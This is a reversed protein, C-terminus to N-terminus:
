PTVATNEAEFNDFYAENWGTTLATVGMKYHSDRVSVIEQHDLRIIIRDGSCRMELHHWSGKVPRAQGQQLLSSDKGNRKLQWSGTHSIEFAYGDVKSNWPFRQLRSEIGVRGTDPLLFDASVRMDTWSSDGFLIRPYPQGFWNIGQQRAGQKLWRNASASDGVVEFAGHYSIFFPPQRNLSDGDFDDKYHDPFPAPPPVAHQAKGKQQGRTTTLSYVTNPKLTLVFTGQRPTIDAKREFLHGPSSQWVALAKDPLGGSLRFHVTQDQKAETTEIIVSYDHTLTDTLATVSWGKDKFYKCASNVYKWGPRAFQNTHAVIWLPPQVTYRGSWPTNAEMFGSAPATLYHPYSTILSWYIVKTIRALPYARNNIRAVKAAAAWDGGHDHSEGSWVPKGIQQVEPPTRFDTEEPVHANVAYVAKALEPDKAIDQAIQWQHEPKWQDGADIKVHSLGSEDLVRRLLKIWDKDYLTENRIGTYDVTIGHYKKLGNIYGAIFRANEETYFRGNGVWGPAGWQLTEIRIDPNRKQAEKILWWEYGRNFYAARPNKFEERTHAYAPESGDTSNIDGGIEVKLEPLGAGFGPKFLYDLIDSRYPEPYDVLFRTSAGASLAGIGEFIRGSSNGDITIHQASLNQFSLLLICAVAQLCLKKM